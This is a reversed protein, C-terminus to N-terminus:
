DVNEEEDFYKENILYYNAMKPIIGINNKILLDILKNGNILTLPAAGKEFAADKAGKSFDSLTIITGQFADFRHLSGRLADLVPRTINSTTNQKVQIVEKVTTIGNQSIGTVDVGKDNSPSTVRVDDYGMSSLLDKIINEFRYPTTESLYKRLLEKQEKNFQEIAKNLQIEKDIVPNPNANEINQLYLLGKETITYVNGERKIYKRDILNVLRRRLYDKIVSDQKLNSNYKTYKEWEELLDARKGGEILSLQRLIQILGEENDIKQMVENEAKGIFIKGEQTLEYMGSTETILHYMSILFQDGRTWRPNVEKNSDTWIKVAIERDKGTLREQIWQDPETWDATNQPTGRLSWISNWM